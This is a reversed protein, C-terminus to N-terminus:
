GLRRRARLEDLILDREARDLLADIAPFVTTEERVLHPELESMLVDASARLAARAERDGPRAAVHQLHEVLDCVLPDHWAHEAAMSALAADLTPDRGVLRPLISKEEDVLHKPFAEVFYRECRRCAEVREDDAVHPEAGIRQALAGFTRIREHCELLLPVLGERKPRAGLTVIM